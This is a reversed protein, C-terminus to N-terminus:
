NNDSNEDELEATPIVNKREFISPEGRSLRELEANFIKDTLDDLFRLRDGDNTVPFGMDIKLDLIFRARKEAKSRIAEKDVEIM